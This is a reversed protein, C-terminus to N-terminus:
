SGHLAALGAYIAASAAISNSIAGFDEDTRRLLPVVAALLWFLGSVIVAARVVSTNPHPPHEGAIWSVCFLVTLALGLVARRLRTM